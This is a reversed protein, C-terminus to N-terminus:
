MQEFPDHNSSAARAVVRRLAALGFPKPLVGVVAAIAAADDLRTPDGSMAVLPVGLATAKDVLELGSGDPLNMDVMVFAYSANLREFAEKLLGVIHVEVGLLELGEAILTAVVPVDDVVLAKVHERRFRGRPGVCSVWLM